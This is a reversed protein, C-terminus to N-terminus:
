VVQHANGGSDYATILAFHANGGSDYATVLGTHKSGGSDYATVVGSRVEITLSAEKSPYSGYWEHIEKLVYKVTGGRPGTVDSPKVSKSLGSGSYLRSSGQWLEFRDFNANGQTGSKAWSLTISDGYNVKSKSASFSPNGHATYPRAPVTVTRTGSTNGGVASWSSDWSARVTFNRASGSQAVGFTHSFWVPSGGKPLYITGSASGVGDVSISWGCGYMNWTAGSYTAACNVTISSDTASVNIIIGDAM